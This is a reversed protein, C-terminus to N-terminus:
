LSGPTPPPSPTFHVYENSRTHRNTTESKCRHATYMDAAATLAVQPEARVALPLPYM